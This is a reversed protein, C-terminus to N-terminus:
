NWRKLTIIVEAGWGNKMDVFSLGNRTIAKISIKESQINLIGALKSAIKPKITSIKPSDLVVTADINIISINKPVLLLIKKLLDISSIDKFEPNNPFHTGIDGLNLAGSIADIIAHTLVDGDSHAISKLNCPVKIGGIIVGNGDELSHFDIGIGYFIDKTLLKSIMTFDEKSTIKTNVSKNEYIDVNIGCDEVIASEDTYEHIIPLKKKYVENLVISDFVQPTEAIWLNERDVTFELKKNKVSKVTETIKKALVTAKRHESFRHLELILKEDILPRVADHIFIKSNEESIKSFANYVSKSRSSGGECIIVSNYKPSQLQENILKILKKPVVLFISSFLETNIFADLSYLYVPKSNIEEVQKYSGFRSGSGAGLIIAYNKM